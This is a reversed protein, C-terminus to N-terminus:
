RCIQCVRSEIPPNGTTACALSFCRRFALPEAWEGAVRDVQITFALTRLHEHAYRQIYHVHHKAGSGILIEGVRTDQLTAATNM